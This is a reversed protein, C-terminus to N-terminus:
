SIWAMVKDIIIWKGNEKELLIYYGIGMLWHRQNGFYLFAKNKNKGFAVRSLEISGHSDPYKKYFRDWGNSDKFIEHFEEKSVLIVHLSKNFRNELKYAKKNRALFQKILFKDLTKGSKKEFYSATKKNFGPPRITTEENIVLLNRTETLNVLQPLVDSFVEYEEDTIEDSPSQIKAIAVLSILFCILVSSIFIIKKM